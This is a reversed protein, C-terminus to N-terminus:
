DLKWEEYLLDAAKRFAARIARLSPKKYVRRTLQQRLDACAEQLKSLEADKRKLKSEHCRKAWVLAAEFNRADEDAQAKMERTAEMTARLARDHSEAQRRFEDRLRRIETNLRTIEMQEETLPPPMVIEREFEM